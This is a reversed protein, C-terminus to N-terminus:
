ENRDITNIIMTDSNIFNVTDNLPVKLTDKQTEAPTRCNIYASHGYWGLFMGNLLCSFALAICCWKPCGKTEKPQKSEIQESDFVDEDKQVAPIEGYIDVLVVTINDNGGKENALDILKPVKEEISINQNLVSVIEAKTLMDSLGDSCLLYTAGPILSFTQSDIFDLDSIGHLDMGVARDIINRHPHSMAEVESLLGNDEQYGVESHDLSLKIIDQNHNDFCYLRTDGVHALHLQGHNLDFLAATLVCAMRDCNRRVKREEFITNNARIVSQVLLSLREGNSYEKLYEIITTQAIQAAVEGSEVGGVGDIAVALLHKDDWLTQAIFADENNSRKKGIDTNGFIEFTLM